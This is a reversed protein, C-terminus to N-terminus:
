DSNKFEKADVIISSPPTTIRGIEDINLNYEAEIQQIRTETIGEKITIGGDFDDKLSRLYQQELGLQKLQIKIMEKPLMLLPRHIPRDLLPDTLKFFDFERKIKSSLHDKVIIAHQFQDVNLQLYRFVIRRTLITKLGNGIRSIITSFHKLPLTTVKVIGDPFFGALFSAFQLPVPNSNLGSLLLEVPVGRRVLYWAALVSSITGDFLAYLKRQSGVPMGGLGPVRDLMLYALDGHAEIEIRWDPNKLNVQLNKEQFYEHILGGVESQIQVSTLGKKISRRASVGFTQNPKLRSELLECARTALIEPRNHLKIAPSLSVIGPIWKSLLDVITEVQSSYIFIRGRTIEIDNVAVQHFKLLRRIHRILLNMFHRRVGSSKLSIEGFRILVLEFLSPKKM